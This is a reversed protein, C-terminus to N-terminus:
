EGDGLGRQESIYTCLTKGLPQDSGINSNRQGLMLSSYTYKTHEEGHSVFLGNLAARKSQHTAVYIPEHTRTYIIM